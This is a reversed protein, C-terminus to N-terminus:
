KTKGKLSITLEIDDSLVMDNMKNEYTVGYNQRDFVLNGSASFNGDEETIIVDTVKESNTIGRVTLEGTIDNGDMQKFVFGSTPYKETAFFDEAQLHGILKERPANVYLADDDTTLMSNMDVVFSGGVIKGDKISISSENFVMTGEHSYIGIMSGKWNLVSESPSVNYDVQKMENKHNKENNHKSEESNCAFMSTAAIVLIILHKM